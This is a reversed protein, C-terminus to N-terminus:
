LRGTGFTGWHEKQAGPVPGDLSQGPCRFRLGPGRAGPVHRGGYEERQRNGRDTGRGDCNNSYLTLLTGRKFASMMFTRPSNPSRWFSSATAPLKPNPM